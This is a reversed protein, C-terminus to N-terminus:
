KAVLRRAVTVAGPADPSYGDAGIKDVFAQTVPAGGAMTKFHSGDTKLKSIVAEMASMTTTLLASM